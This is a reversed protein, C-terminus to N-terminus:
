RGEEGSAIDLVQRYLRAVQDTSLTWNVSVVAFIAPDLDQLAEIAAHADDIGAEWGTDDNRDFNRINFQRQINRAIKETLRM